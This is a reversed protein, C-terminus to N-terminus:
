QPNWIFTIVFFIIFFGVMLVIGDKDAKTDGKIKLEDETLDDSTKWELLYVLLNPLGFDVGFLTIIMNIYCCIKFIQKLYNWISFFLGLM